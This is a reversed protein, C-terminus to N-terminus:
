TISFHILVGPESTDGEPQASTGIKSILNGPITIQHDQISIDETIDYSCDDALDQM